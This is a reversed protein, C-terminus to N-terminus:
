GPMTKLETLRSTAKKTSTESEIEVRETETIPRERVQSSFM